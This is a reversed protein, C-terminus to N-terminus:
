GGVQQLEGAEGPLELAQVDLPGRVEDFHHRERHGLQELFPEFRGLDLRRTADRAGDSGITSGVGWSRRVHQQMVVDALDVPLNRFPCEDLTARPSDRLRDRGIGAFMSGLDPGPRGDVPDPDLGTARDTDRKGVTGLQARADHDRVGMGLDREAIQDFRFLQGRSEHARDVTVLSAGPSDFDIQRKGLRWSKGSERVSIRTRGRPRENLKAVRHLVQLLGEVIGLVAPRRRPGIRVAHQRGHDVVRQGRAPLCM